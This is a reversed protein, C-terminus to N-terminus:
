RHSNSIHMPGWFSRLDCEKVTPEGMRLHNGSRNGLITIFKAEDTGWQEEGAAYLDQARTLVCFLLIIQPFFYYIFCNIFVLELNNNQISIKNLAQHQRQAEQEAGQTNKPNFIFWPRM